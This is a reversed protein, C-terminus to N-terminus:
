MLSKSKAAKDTEVVAVLLSHVFLFLLALKFLISEQAEM